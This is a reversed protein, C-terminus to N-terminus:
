DPQVVVAYFMMEMGGDGVDRGERAGGRQLYRPWDGVQPTAVSLPPLETRSLLPALPMAQGRPQRGRYLAKSLHRSCLKEVGKGQRSILGFKRM